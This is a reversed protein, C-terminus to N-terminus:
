IGVYASLTASGVNTQQVGHQQTGHLLRDTDEAPWAWLLLGAAAPKSSHALTPVSLCVSPCVFPRISQHGVSAYLRCRLLAKQQVLTTLLLTATM